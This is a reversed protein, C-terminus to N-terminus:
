RLQKRGDEAALRLNEAVAASAVSWKGFSRARRRTRDLVDDQDDLLVVAEVGVEAAEGTGVAVAAKASADLGGSKSGLWM